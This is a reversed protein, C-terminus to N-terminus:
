HKGSPGQPQSQPQDELIYVKEDPRVLKLRKRIEMEQEAPSEKLRQIRVRLAENTRALDTNQQEMRLLEERKELWAPVGEPGRLSYFAYAFAALIAIVYLVRVFPLRMERDGSPDIM